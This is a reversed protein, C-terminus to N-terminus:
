EQKVSCLDSGVRLAIRLAGRFETELERAIRLADRNRGAVALAVAVQATYLPSGGSLSAARKLESIGSHSGSQVYDEGLLASTRNRRFPRGGM